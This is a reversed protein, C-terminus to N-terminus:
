PPTRFVLRTHGVSIISAPALPIAEGPPLPRGDVATENASYLDRLWYGEDGHFIEAHRTSVYPDYDLCLDAVPDRGVLWPGGGELRVAQGIRMGYVIELKAVPEPAAVVSRGEPPDLMTRFDAADELVPELRGLQAFAEQITFLRPLVLSYESMAGAGPRARRRVVLGEDELLRLHARASQRTVGLNLAVTEITRPETLLRLTQLRKENSLVRFYRALAGLDGLGPM